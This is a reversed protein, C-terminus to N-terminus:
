HALLHKMNFIGKKGHLFKAASLAGAAFGIRNHATHKLEIEDILSEFKVSHTGPINDIRECTIPLQKVDKIEGEIWQNYGQHNEIIQEATTIATGSPHDLKATHHIEHISVKYDAQQNFSSAAKAVLQFFINVGISFNTATFLAGNKEECKTKIEPLDNYWGTTGVVIPKGAEFCFLINEKASEPKTFDIVVDVNKLDHSTLTARNHEDVILVVECHNDKAISHITKGMKGFGFLAIKLTEM